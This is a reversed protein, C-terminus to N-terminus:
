RQVERREGCREIKDATAILWAGIQSGCQSLLVGLAMLGLVFGVGVSSITLTM